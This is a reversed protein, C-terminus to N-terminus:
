EVNFSSNACYELSVQPDLTICSNITINSGYTQGIVSPATGVVRLRYGTGKSINVPIAASISVIGSFSATLSGIEHPSAFSGTADSLQLIFKNGSQAGPSSFSMLFEKGACMEVPTSTICIPNISIDYGNMVGITYPSSGVIRIRYGSGAVINSPIVG